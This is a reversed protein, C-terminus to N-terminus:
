IFPRVPETGDWGVSARYFRTFIQEMAADNEIVEIFGPLDGHTDVYGVRAGLPYVPKFPLNTAANRM